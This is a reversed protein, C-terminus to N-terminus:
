ACRFIGAAILFLANMRAVDGAPREPGHRLRMLTISNAAIKSSDAFAFGVGPDLAQRGIGGSLVVAVRKNVLLRHEQLMAALPAALGAPARSLVTSVPRAV